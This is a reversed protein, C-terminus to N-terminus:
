LVCVWAMAFVIAATIAGQWTSLSAYPGPHRLATLIRTM